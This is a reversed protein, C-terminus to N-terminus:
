GFAIKHMYFLYVNNGCSQCLAQVKAQEFEQFHAPGYRTALSISLPNGVVKAANRITVEAGTNLDTLTEQLQKRITEEHDAPVEVTM